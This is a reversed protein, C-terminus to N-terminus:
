VRNSSIPNWFLKEIIDQHNADHAPKGSRMNVKRRSGESKQDGQLDNPARHHDAFLKLLRMLNLGRIKPLSQTYSEVIRLEGLLLPTSHHSTTTAHCDMDVVLLLSEMVSSAVHLEKLEAEYFKTLISSTANAFKRRKHFWVQMRGVLFDVPQTIPYERPVADVNNMSEALNSTMISYRNNSCSRAWKDKGIEKLYGIIRPDDSGLYNLFRECEVESAARAAAYFKWSLSKESGNFNSKINGLIHFICHGHGAKPFVSKVAKIIGEHMDSVIYEVERWAALSIFLYKFLHDPTTTLQILSGPNAQKLMYCMSPLAAYSEEPTGFCIKLAKEKAFWAKKYTMAIGHERRMDTVISNPPYPKTTADCYNHKVLEAVIHYTAQRTNGQRVDIPCQHERNYRRIQFMEVGPLRVARVDWQCRPFDVCVVHLESKKSTRTRYQFCNSIALMKLHYDLDMKSSYIAGVVIRTSDFRSTVHMEKLSNIDQQSMEYGSPNSDISNWSVLERDHDNHTSIEDVNYTVLLSEKFLDCRSSINDGCITTENGETPVSEGNSVGMETFHYVEVCLPFERLSPYTSKLRLYALLSVDDEIVVRRSSSESMYLINFVSNEYSSPVTTRVLEVFDEYHTQIPIDIEYAYAYSFVGNGDWEGDFQLLLHINPPTSSGASYCSLYRQVSYKDPVLDDDYCLTWAERPIDNLYKYAAENAHRIKAMYENFQKINPTSGAAWVKRKLDSDHFKNMFNSRVHRLCYRKTIFGTQLEPLDRYANIIGAHQDSIVCVRHLRIVRQVLLRFFWAWSDSTEGDVVAYALPFLEQNGNLAVALLLLGKYKGYLHTGDVTVVPLCYQLGNIAAPFAWFAYKFHPEEDPTVNLNPPPSSYVVDVITGPYANQLNYLIVPLHTYSDEWSGHLM